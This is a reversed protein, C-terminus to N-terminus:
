SSAGLVRFRDVEKDTAILAMHLASAGVTRGTLAGIASAAQM